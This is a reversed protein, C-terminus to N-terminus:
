QRRRDLASRGPLPDGLLGATVGQLEVRALLEANVQLAALSTPVRSITPRCDEAQHMAPAQMRAILREAAGERKIRAFEVQCADGTRGLEEGIKAWSAGRQILRARESDTWRKSKRRM